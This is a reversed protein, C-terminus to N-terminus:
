KREYKMKAKVEANQYRMQEFSATNFLVMTPDKDFETWAADKCKRKRVLSSCDWPLRQLIEGGKTTKLSSTPVKDTILTLKQHLEGWMEEVSLDDRSYGWVIDASHENVFDQNVKFWKKKESTLFEANNNVKPEVLLSVHDSKGVPALIDVSNVFCDNNFFVQDLLSCQAIDNDCLKRVRTSSETLYWKLGKRSFVDMYEAEMLLRKDISNLPQKVLGKDWDVHPLNVDGVIM